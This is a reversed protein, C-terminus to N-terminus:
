KSNNGQQKGTSGMLQAIATGPLLACVRMGQIDGRVGQTVSRTGELPPHRTGGVVGLGLERGRLVSEGKQTAVESGGGSAEVGEGGM